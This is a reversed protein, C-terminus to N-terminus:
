GTNTNGLLRLYKPLQADCYDENECYIKSVRLAGEVLVNKFLKFGTGFCRSLIDDVDIKVIQWTPSPVILPIACLDDLVYVTSRNNEMSIRRIRGNVDYAEIEIRFFRQVHKFQLVLYKHKTSVNFSIQSTKESMEIVDTKLENDVILATNYPSTYFHLNNIDAAEESIPFLPTLMVLESM